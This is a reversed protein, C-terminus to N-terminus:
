EVREEMGMKYKALCPCSVFLGGKSVGEEIIGMDISDNGGHDYAGRCHSGSTKGVWINLEGAPTIV